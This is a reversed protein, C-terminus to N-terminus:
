HHHGRRRRCRGRRGHVLAAYPDDESVTYSNDPLNDETYYGVSGGSSIIAGTSTDFHKEVVNEGKAFEKVPLDAQLNEMLAKWAYQIPSANRGAKGLTNMETPATVAGGSPLSM